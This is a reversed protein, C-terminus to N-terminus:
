DQMAVTDKQKPPDSQRTGGRRPFAQAEGHEQQSIIATPPLSQKHVLWLVFRTRTCSFNDFRHPCPFAACSSKPDGLMLVELGSIKM